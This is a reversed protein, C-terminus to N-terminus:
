LNILPKRKGPFNVQFRPVTLPASKYWIREIRNKKITLNLDNNM